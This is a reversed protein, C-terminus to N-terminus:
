ELTESNNRIFEECEARTGQPHDLQWEMVRDLVPRVLPGAKIGLIRAVDRGDVLHKLAFADAVGNEAVVRVFAAHTRVAADVDGTQLAAVAAAFLTAPAWRAGAERVLLGLTKRSPSADSCCQLALQSIRPALEHLAAVAEGEHKNLKLGDRVAVYVMPATRKGDSVTLGHMPYLYAALVLLRRLQPDAGIGALPEPLPSALPGDLLRLVQETAAAALSEDLAAPPEAQAGPLPPRFVVSYLGFDLLMHISLLPRPGAAMKDL